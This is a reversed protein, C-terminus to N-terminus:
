LITLTTDQCLLCANQLQHVYSLRWKSDFEFHLEQKNLNELWKIKVELLLSFQFEDTGKREKVELERIGFDNLWEKTIEIGEYNKPFQNITEIDETLIKFEVGKSNKIYNGIQFIDINM